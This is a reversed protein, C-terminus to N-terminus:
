IRGGGKTNVRIPLHYQFWYWNEQSRTDITLPIARGIIHQITKKKKKYQQLTTTEVKTSLKGEVWEKLKSIVQQLGQLDLFKM